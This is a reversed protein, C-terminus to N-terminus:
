PLTLEAPALEARAVPTGVSGARGPLADDIDDFDGDEIAVLLRDMGPTLLRPLPLRLVTELTPLELMDAQLNHLEADACGSNGRLSRAALVQGAVFVRALDAESPGRQVVVAAAQGEPRKWLRM